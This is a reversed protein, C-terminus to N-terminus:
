RTPLTSLGTQSAYYAALDKMDQESLPAVMSAMIANQRAGSKYAKLAHLLYNAHQGALIPNTPIQSNGDSGHCGACTISKSKGAQPDGAAWSLASCMVFVSCILLRIKPM